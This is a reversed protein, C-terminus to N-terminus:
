VHAILPQAAIVILARLVLGVLIIRPAVPLGLLWLAVVVVVSRWAICRRKRAIWINGEGFFSRGDHRSL